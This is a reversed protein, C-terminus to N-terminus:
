FNPKVNEKKILTPHEVRPTGVGYIMKRIMTKIWEGDLDTARDKNEV